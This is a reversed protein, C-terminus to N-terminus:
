KVNYHGYDPVILQGVLMLPPDDGSANALIQNYTRTDIQKQHGGQTGQCDGFIGIRTARDSQDGATEQGQRDHDCHIEAPDSGTNGGRNENAQKFSKALRHRQLMLLVAGRERAGGADAERLNPPGSGWFQELQDPAMAKTAAGIRALLLNVMDEDSLPIM